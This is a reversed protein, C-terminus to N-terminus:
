HIPLPESLGHRPGYDSPIARKFGCIDDDFGEQSGKTKVDADIYIGMYAGTLSKRGINKISYDFLVFDEAYSYSWSYSRQTVEINLPMHPRGDVDDDTVYGPDTVTDTYVSIFDQESIADVDAANSISREIIKGKPYPDPWMERTFQWGDAGVSVLTDRGIVAGIWFAGAFLYEQQSPYPFQCSPLGEDSTMFGTGLQGQNNTSLGIKGVTHAV